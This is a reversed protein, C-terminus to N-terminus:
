TSPPSGSSPSAPSNWGAKARDERTAPAPREPRTTLDVGLLILPLGLLVGAHQPEGLWAVGVLVGTLPSVYFTGATNSGDFTVLDTVDCAFPLHGGEHEGAKRGNVWVAAWYNASGVRLLVRQGQWARPVYTTRAYWALGLYLCLDAYQDNWSGPVALPRAGSLGNAWGRDAGIEDPDTQFAWVGSLDLRNRADNQIPYLM